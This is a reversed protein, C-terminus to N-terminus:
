SFLVQSAMGPQFIAGNHAREVYPQPSMQPPAYVPPPVLSKEACGWLCLATLVWPLKWTFGRRPLNMREFCCEGSYGSLAQFRNRIPRQNPLIDNNRSM